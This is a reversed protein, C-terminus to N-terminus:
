APIAEPAPGSGPAAGTGGEGAATGSGPVAGGGGAETEEDDPGATLLAEITGEQLPHPEQSALRAYLRHWAAEDTVPLHTRVLAAVKAVAEAVGEPADPRHRTDGLYRLVCPGKGAVTILEDATVTGAELLRDLRDIAGDPTSSYSIGDRLIGRAVVPNERHCVPRSRDEAAAATHRALVEPPTPMRNVIRPWHKFPERLHEAELYAWDISWDDFLLMLQASESAGSTIGVRRLRAALKPTTFEREARTRLAALPDSATLAKACVRSVAPSLLGTALFATLRAPGGGRLISLAGTLHEQIRFSKVRPGTFATEVLEPERALLLERHVLNSLRAAHPALTVSPDSFVARRRDPGVRYWSRAVKLHLEHDGLRLLPGATREDLDPGGALACLAERDDTAILHELLDPPTGHRLAVVYRALQTGTDEPLAPLVLGLVTRDVRRLVEGAPWWWTSGFLADEPSLGSGGRAVARRRDLDLTPRLMGPDPTVTGALDLLQPWTIDPRDSDARCNLEVATLLRLWADRDTGLAGSLLSRLGREIAFRLPRLQWKVRHTMTLSAPLVGLIDGATVLGGLYFPSLWAALSPTNKYGIMGRANRDARTRLEELIEARGPLSVPRPGRPHGEPFGCGAWAEVLWDPCGTARPMLERHTAGLFRVTRPDRPLPPPGDGGDAALRRLLDITAVAARETSRFPAWHVGSRTRDTHGDDAGGTTPRSEAGTVATM